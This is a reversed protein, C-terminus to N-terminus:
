LVAELSPKLVTWMRDYGFSNPHAWNGGEDKFLSFDQTGDPLLMAVYYDVWTYRWGRCWKVLENNWSQVKTVTTNPRNTSNPVPPITGVIVRIGAAKASHAMSAISDLSPNSYFEVDNTGALICVAWPNLAIVDASFRAAMAISDQGAIGKNVSDYMYGSLPWQSTISDGMFAVTRAPTAITGM